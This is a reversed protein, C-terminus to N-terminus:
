PLLMQVGPMAEIEELDEEYNTTLEAVLEDTWGPLDIEEEMADELAYKDLFAALIRRRQTENAPTHTKLYTRLRMMGENRMIQSLIDFGGVMRLDASVGAVAQMAAPWLMPTDEFAWVTLPVDPCSTRIDAVVDSWYVSRLDTNGVFEEYPTRRALANAAAPIFSAPNRLSLHFEMPYDAFTNRLWKSKFEVRRYFRDREFILDPICITNEYGLVLREPRDPGTIADILRDQAARPAPVFKAEKMAAPLLDRYRLTSPVMVGQEKLVAKNKQLSRMLLSGNTFHAGIHVSIIM